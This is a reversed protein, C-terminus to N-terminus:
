LRLRWTQGVLNQGFSRHPEEGILEFGCTEYIHRAATLISNTWLVLERYGLERARAVCTEVLRRGLGLGRAWPELYLLRLKATAEDQRVLFISGAIEGEVEAIWCDEREPDFDRVFRGVVEAALAEFSGDWDYEEHYLRAHRHIVWGFDGPRPPRLVIEAPGPTGLLREVRAMAAVLAHRQAQNLTELEGSAQEASARDLPAFAARGAESLALLAQRGDPAPRREILGREEFGKILRSLYGADLGLARRLDQATQKGGHALDYLLRAQTLTFPSKLLGEDLLGIRRTYFRNFRRLAAIQEPSPSQSM